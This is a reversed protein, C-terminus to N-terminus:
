GADETCGDLLERATGALQVAGAQRSIVEKQGAKGSLHATGTLMTLRDIVTMDLHEFMGLDIGLRLWSLAALAEGSSLMYCHRLLGYARSVKDLLTYKDNQLLEQRMNREQARVKGTVSSIRAIIETESEGLTGINSFVYLSGCKGCGDGNVGSVGIGLQLMSNLVHEFAGSFELAPLHMLVRAQLGTGASDPSTTLFGLEPDFAFGIKGALRNDLLNARRWLTKLMNGSSFFELRLHEGDNIVVATDQDANLFVGCPKDGKQAAETIIGRERLIGASVADITRCDFFKRKRGMIGYRRFVGCVLELVAELDSTRGCSPFTFGDINRALVLSSATIISDGPMVRQMWAPIDASIIDLAEGM